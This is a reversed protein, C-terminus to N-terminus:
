KRHCLEPLDLCIVRYIFLPLASYKCQFGIGGTHRYPFPFPSEAFFVVTSLIIFFLLPGESMARRTHLLVLANLSFLLVMLWGLLNGRLKRGILYLFLIDLPFFIASALRGTNIQIQTPFAGKLQNQNWGVSWNWDTPLNLSKASYGFFGSGPEPLPADLLRYQM